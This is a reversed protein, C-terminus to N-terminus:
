NLRMIGVIMKCLGLRIDATVLASYQSARETLIQLTKKKKGLPEFLVLEQRGLISEGM